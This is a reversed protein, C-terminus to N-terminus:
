KEMENEIEYEKQDDRRNKLLKLALREKTIRAKSKLHPYANLIRNQLFRNKVISTDFIESFGKIKDVIEDKVDMLGLQELRENWVAQRVELRKSYRKYYNIGQVKARFADVRSFLEEGTTYVRSSKLYDSVEELLMDMKELQKSLDVAAIAAFIFDVVYLVAASCVFIKGVFVPYLGVVFTMFPQLVAFLLLTAAGWALSSSLCIRGKYNFRQDTYDWWSTHFLMEMVLATVYELMTAFIIGSFFLLLWRGALPRLILYVSLAGVGYITCVPGTVFGRNVFKKELVSVYSSEWLWGLFSYLILYNAILYFSVGLIKFNWVTNM